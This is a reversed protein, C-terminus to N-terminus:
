ARRTTWNQTHSLRRNIPGTRHSSGDWRIGTIGRGLIIWDPKAIANKAPSNTTTVTASRPIYEEGYPLYTAQWVPWGYGASILTSSQIQNDHYYTTTAVPYIGKGRNIDIRSGTGTVGTTHSISTVPSSSEGTYLPQVTGDASIVAAQGYIIAFAGPATDSEQNLAITSITKGAYASLNFKRAHTATQTADDNANYGDQDKLNWNTNTGDTFVLVIGGHSGAAQYQTINLKDGTRIVYNALTGMQLYFLSYQNTCSSCMNGYIRLGKDLAMARAIRKGDAFIYDTWDTATVDYEAIVNSNFRVYETKTSGADKRVRDGAGDYTYTAGTVDVTRIRNEADYAYQHLLDNLLNGGADYSYTNLRNNNGVTYVHQNASGATVNQQLNNGWADYVFGLGWRGENATALRNLSDYTYTQTRSANLQDAASLVDGNNQTGYGYTHDAFTGLAPNSVTDQQTQFRKNLVAAETVGNGLSVLKPVGNPYFNTDSVTWYNYGISTGNWQNFQTRNLENGANYQYTVLRGSPYKLSALNGSLDYIATTAYSTSGCNSPACQWQNLVRGMPDYSMVTGTTATVFRSLRGRTNTIPTGWPSTEDYYFSTGPTSDSYTKSVMRHLEDYSFTATVSRADAKSILRSDSDYGYTIQGSEPNNSTLLRSLSDYTFTRTRWKTSDSPASGKQDVRVLNSLGDYQYDTEYNLGAPDEWVGILRGMADSCTKRTKGAQDVATSCNDAYSLTAISGDPHTVTTVRDLADYQTTTLGYTSEGTSFYPNSVSAIHDLADYATDVVATGSPTIHTTRTHRGLGDLYTFSDDSLGSNIKKLREVTTLSPYNFTVQGHNGSTDADPFVVSTTRAMFDYAYTTSNNNQDIFSTLLGTTFDYTGSVCHTVTGTQPSCTQTAYAGAYTSDYSHTTTHGLPDIDQYAEGTDYWKTHSVVATGAKPNCSSTPAAWKTQTTLSGRVPNPAGVHTGAPLSGAYAILYSAEDYTYDTESVTCGSGDKTIVSSPLEVLRATLYRSDSQWQYATDIERLLPGPAGQGWDYQFEKTVLGFNPFNAGLGPDVTKQVQSVKGSPYLTTKINTTFVNGLHGENTSTAFTGSSYTTDVQKLLQRSAGTGQYYQTRTEYFSCGTTGDLATFVHVTDNGLPDTVQNTLTGNSPTGWSYNWTFAHGNSDNLTRSTVARGVHTLGTSSCIGITAWTYSVSGGLPLGINTVDNYSDYQFTWMSADPMIITSLVQTTFPSPVGPRNQAELVNSQAFATQITLTGYCLQFPNNVGNPGAYNYSTVAALPLGGTVCPGTGTTGGTYSAFPRGMTDLQGSANPKYVNGDADTITDIFAHETCTTILDTAGGGTHSCPGVFRQTQYRNGRRDAILALRMYGTELDSLDVHFGSTDITDFSTPAFPDTNPSPTLQHTAGDATMLYYLYDTYSTGGEPSSDTVTTRHLSLDMSYDLGGGVRDASWYCPKGGGPCQVQWGKFNVALQNKPNIKDGRQPYTFPMPVHLILNGNMLNVTDLNSGDYSGYAKFGNEIDPPTQGWSLVSGVLIVAFLGVLKASKM